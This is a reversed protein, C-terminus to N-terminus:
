TAVLAELSRTFNCVLTPEIESKFNRDVTHSNFYNVNWCERLGWSCGKAYQVGALLQVFHLQAQERDM